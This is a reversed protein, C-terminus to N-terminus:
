VKEGISVWRGLRGVAFFSLEGVRLTEDAICLLSHFSKALVSHISRAQCLKRIYDPNKNSM